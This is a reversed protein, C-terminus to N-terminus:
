GVTQTAAARSQHERDAQRERKRAAKAWPGAVRILAKEVAAMCESSLVADSKGRDRYQVVPIAVHLIVSIPDNYDCDAGDSDILADNAETDFLKGLSPSWNLGVRLELEDLDEKVAFGAEVVFPVITGDQGRAEGLEKAYRFTDIDAREAELSQRWHDGGIVGLATPNV